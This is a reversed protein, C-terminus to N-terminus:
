SLWGERRKLVEGECDALSLKVEHPIKAQLIVDFTMLEDRRFAHIKIKDGPQHTRLLIDIKDLSVAIDNIAILKDHASLGAKMAASGSYCVTITNDSDLKVGLEVTADSSKLEQKFDIGLADASKKIPLPKAEYLWEHLMPSIAKGTIEGLYNELWGEPVGKNVQGFRAWLTRMVDDLSYKTHERLYADIMFAIVAGKTYYSITANPSNENPDYFKDWACFSADTVSQILHGPASLVSTMKEAFMKFFLEVSILGARVLALDEYYSTFGEFIWLQRTYTERDLQYPIFVEPKIRKVNWTHFYEHSVLSLFTAYDETDEPMGPYPMNKRSIVLKTSARHELGNFAKGMIHCLIVYHSSPFEGFLQIHQSCLKELDRKLKDRDLTCPGTLVIRHVVGSPKFEIVEFNGMEIPHDILEDYNEASYKGFGHHGVKLPTMATALEWNKGEPPFFEVSCPKDEFGNVTFFCHTGNFFGHTQDLHCGRVSIDWAYIKASVVIKAPGSEVRWHNKSIQTLPVKKGNATAHISIVQKCFERIKYSGPIWNPLWIEQHDNSQSIHCVATMVHAHPDSPTLEYHVAFKDM